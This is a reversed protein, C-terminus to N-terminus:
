AAERMQESVYGNPFLSWWKEAVAKKVRHRYSKFVSKTTTHGMQASIRPADEWMALHYSAYSHRLADHPWPILEREVPRGDPGLPNRGQCRFGADRRAQKFRPWFNKQRIRGEKKLPEIWTKLVPEVKVYRYEATKASEQGVDILGEELDIAEWTLDGAEREPRLGAFAGIAIIARLDGQAVTLLALLQEPTLIGVRGDAVAKPEIESIPNVLLYHRKKAYGFLTHVM